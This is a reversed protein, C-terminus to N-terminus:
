DDDFASAASAIGLRPDLDLALTLRGAPQTTFRYVADENDKVKGGQAIRLLKSAQYPSAMDTSFLDFPEVGADLLMRKARNKEAVSSWDRKGARGVVTKWHKLEVGENAKALLFEGLDSFYKEVAKRHMYIRELSELPMTRIERIKVEGPPLPVPEGSIIEALADDDYEGGDDFSGAVMALTADYKAPCETRIPCYECAKPDPQRPAQPDWARLAAVRFEEAFALLEERTCTWVDDHDLRPQFIRITITQFNYLWDLREFVGLAYSLGQRNKKAFVRVMGYKLDMVTLHEWRAWVRDATGGQNPIPTYRSLDVKVETFCDGDGVMAAGVYRRVHSVMEETIVIEFGDVTMTTGILHYPEEGDNLWTEAVHHAVTGEASYRSPSDGAILGPILSGPCAMWRHAASPGFLSHGTAAKAALMAESIPHDHYLIVAHDTM